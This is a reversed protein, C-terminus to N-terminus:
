PHLRRAHARSKATSRPARNIKPKLTGAKRREESMAKSLGTQADKEDFPGYFRGAKYDAESEALDAKLEADFDIIRKRKLIITHDEGVRAQVLDGVHLDLEDRVEKPITVQYKPGVKIVQHPM